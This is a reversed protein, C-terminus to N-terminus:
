WRSIYWNNGSITISQAVLAGETLWARSFISSGSGELEIEGDPAYLSGQFPGCPVFWSGGSIKVVDEGSGTGWLLLDGHYPSLEIGRASIVIKDAILTVEGSAYRRDLTMTGDTYYIGPKLQRKGAGLWVDDYDELNVNGSFIYEHEDEYIGPTELDNEFYDQPEGIDPMGWIEADPPLKLSGYTLPKNEILEQCEVEGTVHNYQGTVRIVYDSHLDGAIINDRGSLLIESAGSDGALIADPGWPWGSPGAEAYFRRPVIQITLEESIQGVIAKINVELYTAYVEFSLDLYNDINQAIVVSFSDSQWEDDEFWTVTEERIVKGNDYRYAVEYEHDTDDAYDTWRFTGYEPNTGELFTEAMRGDETFWQAIQRVEHAATLQDTQDPPVTLFNVFALGLPPLILGIILVSM